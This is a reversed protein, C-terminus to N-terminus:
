IVEKLKNESIDVISSNKTIAVRIKSFAKKALDKNAYKLLHNEGTLGITVDRETVRM